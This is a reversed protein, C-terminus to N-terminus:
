SDHIWAIGDGYVCLVLSYRSSIMAREWDAFVVVVSGGRSVFYKSGTARSSWRLRWGRGFFVGRLNTM